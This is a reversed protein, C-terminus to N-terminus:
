RIVRGVIWAYAVYGPILLLGFTVQGTAQDIFPMEFLPWLVMMSSYFFYFGIGFLTLFFLIGALWRALPAPKVTGCKVCQIKRWSVVRHGFISKRGKANKECIKCYAPYTTYSM